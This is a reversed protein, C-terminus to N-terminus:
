SPNEIVYPRFIDEFTEGRKALDLNQSRCDTYLIPPASKIFPSKFVITYAGVNLFQIYDGEALPGRYKELLKDWELCTYGVIDYDQPIAAHETDNCPIHKISLHKKHLSPKVNFVSGSCVAYNRDRIKKLYLIRTYFHLVNSVLGVGPEMILEPQEDPYARKVLPAITEAYEEYSPIHCAFQLKINEDMPGFIGGGLNLYAPARGKFMKMSIEIMKLTRYRFSELTRGPTNYHCHLGVVKCNPASSIEKFGHELEGNELCLGFRSYSGDKLEFNCRLGVHFNQDPLSHVIRLVQQMEALNDINLMSHHTLAYELDANDKLPGNFIIREARVGCQLALQYEMKSVVEAYAGLKNVHQVLRPIYNTKYSYGIKVNHYHRSFAEIFRYYNKSLLDLDLVFFASGYEEELQSLQEFNM